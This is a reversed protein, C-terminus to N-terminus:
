GSPPFGDGDLPVRWELKTGRGTPGPASVSLEGGLCEAREALNRLGSRRGGEVLGVGDDTVLVTLVGEVASLSVEARGANAHRAVNTLAEGIVALAADATPSPVDTDILGEMRLAPTFGLTRAAEEVAQSARLRLKPTVGPVEHERLGFITSRIIKITADLDDIARALRESAEPHEVFRQASQLTMGTAFLRQIALDHLDRAIRDHDELMSMQEADRRRDALELALAAQGAFGPLAAIETRAFPPRGHRRALILVGSLKEKTGVTVAVAPGLGKWREPQVTIRDDSGVDAVTILGDEEGLAAAALTGASSPLVIGRHAEAGEGLALSGRLEGGQGVLYFVGIDAGTIDRARELMGELVETEALGSLLASTFDSSAALWRERLRVEEYLRANEIAIGAAVALTSLVAEDEEDFDIGGRKETMYLNGFVDERVRIPVGLFTHMPPHHAPFGYSAPHDSLESLRLTEPHRILEGLIGHGSPLDGIEARLEGSIGVPLFQALKQDDGIVGLAGYEADVLVVAAEVIGRLVQPLDLERGVSLVAELLGNLRDRTGRVEDIRVQLEELLEDLRLRPLGPRVAAQEDGGM